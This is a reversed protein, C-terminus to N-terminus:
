SWHTVFINPNVKKPICYSYIWTGEIKEILLPDLWNDGMASERTAFVKWVVGLSPWWFITATMAKLIAIFSSSCTSYNPQWTVTHTVLRCIFVIKPTTIFIFKSQKISLKKIKEGFVLFMYFFFQMNKKSVLMVKLYINFFM